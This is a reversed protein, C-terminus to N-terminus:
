KFYKEPAQATVVEYTRYNILVLVKEESRDVVNGYLAIRNATYGSQIQHSTFVVDIHYKDKFHKIGVVTAKQVIIEEKKSKSNSCYGVALALVAIIFLIIIFVKKLVVGRRYLYM